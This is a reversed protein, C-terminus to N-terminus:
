KEFSTKYIYNILLVGNIFTGATHINVRDGAFVDFGNLPLSGVSLLL